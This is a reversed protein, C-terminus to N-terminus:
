VAAKPACFHQYGARQFFFDSGYTVFNAGRSLWQQAEDMSGTTTGFPVGANRCRELVHGCLDIVEPTRAFASWEGPNAKITEGPRLMSYALDNPGMFVGDIGKVELIADIDRVAGASEIQIILAAAQDAVAMYGALGSGYKAARFPGFSRKGLPPFKAADVARKALEPSNVMPVLVGPVGQDFLWNILHYDNQAARVIPWPRQEDRFAGLMSPFHSQTFESHQMDLVLFDFGALTMAEVNAFSAFGCWSGIVGGGRLMSGVTEQQTMSNM